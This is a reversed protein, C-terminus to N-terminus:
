KRNDWMEYINNITQQCRYKAKFFFKNIQSYQFTTAAHAVGAEKEQMNEASVEM